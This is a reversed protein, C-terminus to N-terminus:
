LNFNDLFFYRPRIHVLYFLMCTLKLLCAEGNKQQWSVYLLKDEHATWAGRKMDEKAHIKKRVMNKKKCEAAGPFLYKNTVRKPVFIACTLIASLTTYIV